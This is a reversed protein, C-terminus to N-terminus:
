RNTINALQILLQEAIRKRGMENLHGGDNTYQLVLVYGTQGNQTFSIRSGNPNISEIMALDFIPEKGNYQKRLMENFQERKINDDYGSVPKGIIKKIWAKPGTQITTLPTTIHVFTTRPYIKGITSMTNKYDEFVKNVDTGPLIDVYCFKFFAIDTKNGLGKDIFGAFADCKSKPDTNNGVTSHGFLPATFDSPSSTEVINLKIQPNEKMVDKIGDIINFGVSQHGFYIKKQSLKQWAETSVSKISPLTTKATSEMKGGSCSTIALVLLSMVFLECSMALLQLFPRQTM